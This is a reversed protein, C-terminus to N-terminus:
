IIFLNTSLNHPLFTGLIDEIFNPDIVLCRTNKAEVMYSHQLFTRADGIIVCLTALKTPQRRTNGRLIGPCEEPRAPSRAPGLLARRLFGLGLGPGSRGDPRVKLSLGSGDCWFGTPGRAEPRAEEKNWANILGLGPGDYDDPRFKRGLGPGGAHEPQGLGPFKPGPRAPGTPGPQGHGPTSYIWRTVVFV